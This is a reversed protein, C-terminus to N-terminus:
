RVGPPLQIGPVFPPKATETARQAIITRCLLDFAHEVNHAHRASTEIFPVGLDDALEKGEDLTVARKDPLIDCKNGVILRGTDRVGAYKEIEQMWMRVHEFSTRDSVDYVVMIGHSGRYYSGM